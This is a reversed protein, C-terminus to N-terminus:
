FFWNAFDALKETLNPLYIVPLNTELQATELQQDTLLCMAGQAKADAWFQNRHGSAGATAVFAFGASVQQSHSALGAVVLDPQALNAVEAQGAFFELIQALTKM